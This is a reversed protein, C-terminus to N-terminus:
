KRGRFVSAIRSVGALGFYSIIITQLVEKMSSDIADTVGWGLVKDWVVIKWIFIVFPLAFLPRIIATYWHGQEAIIIEKAASRAAIDALIESKALDVALVDQKGAAELRVKYADVLKSLLPGSLFSLLWAIM